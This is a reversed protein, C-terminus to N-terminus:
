GFRGHLALLDLGVPFFGEGGANGVAIGNVANGKLFDAAIFQNGQGAAAVDGAEAWAVDKAEASVIGKVM